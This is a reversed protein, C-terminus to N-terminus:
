GGGSGQGSPTGGTAGDGSAGGDTTAPPTTGTTPPPTTETGTTDQPQTDTPTTDTGTTATDTPQTSTPGPQEQTQTPTQRECQASVQQRLNQLGENLRARLRANVSDPLNVVADSARAVAAQAADCNGSRTASAITDLRRELRSADASPIKGGDGGGCAVLGASAAGLLSAALLPVLRMRV